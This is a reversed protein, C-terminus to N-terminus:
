EKIRNELISLQRPDKNESSHATSVVADKSTTETLRATQVSSVLTEALRAEAEQMRLQLALFESGTM